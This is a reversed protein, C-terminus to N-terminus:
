RGLRKERSPGADAQVPPHFGPGVPGGDAGARKGTEREVLPMVEDAFARLVAGVSQGPVAHPRITIQTVEPRVVRAVQAAVGDPRGVLVTRELVEDPLAAMAEKVLTKDQRAAVDVFAPPLTVGLHELYEWKPYHGLLRTAVRRRMVARAAAEDDALCVEFRLSVQLASAERGALGLGEHVRDLYFALASPVLMNAFLVGDAVQGALRAVQAGHTAFYIPVHEQVGRFELRGQRLTVVKGEMTVEEGRWLRRVVEVTERMAAVPLRSQLGIQNFGYGGIGLGLLARGRSLEDLTAIASATLAPHRTYPDTVGPGLRIRETHAAVAALGVYCDRLFRVDTYWLREYGLRESLRALEILDPLPYEANLLVGLSYSV